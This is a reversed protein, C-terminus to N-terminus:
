SRGRLLDRRLQIKTATVRTELEAVTGAARFEGDRIAPYREDPSSM